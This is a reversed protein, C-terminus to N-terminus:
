VLKTILKGQNGGTFLRQYVEPIEEFKAEVVTEADTNTLTGDELWKKLDKQGQPVLEPHDFFIFGKITIRNFIIEGWNTLTLGKENYGSIAGCASIYGGRKILTLMNNLIEGGVNDFYRDAYDPLAEKLKNYYDKDKYDICEDAGLTKVWDCKAKGGAIGVVKKCGIVKKAIQVLVSGVAGAAGSIVVTHEPKLKMEGYAGVYATQGVMGVISLSIFESQGEISVAPVTFPNSDDAKVYEAWQGGTTVRIGEKFKSSKSAVVTGLIGARVIDGAFIPPAYMRKPDFTGDMWTRQAPDNSLADVKVIFEGDKLEEPQPVPREEVKFTNETIRDTPRENLIWVKQTKPLSM